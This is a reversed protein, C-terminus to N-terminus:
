IENKDCLVADGLIQDTLSDKYLLSAELNFKLKKVKGEENRYSEYLYPGFNKGDKKIYKKYVM